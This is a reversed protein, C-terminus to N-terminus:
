WEKIKKSSLLVILLGGWLFVRGFDLLRWILIVVNRWLDSADVIKFSIAWPSETHYGIWGKELYHFIFFLVAVLAGPGYM